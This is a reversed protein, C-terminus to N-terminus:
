KPVVIVNCFFIISVDPDSVNNDISYGGKSADGVNM